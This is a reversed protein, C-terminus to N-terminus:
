TGENMQVRQNSRIRSTLEGIREVYVIASLDEGFCSRDSERGVVILIESVQHQEDWALLLIIGTGVGSIRSRCDM